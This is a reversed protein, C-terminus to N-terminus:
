GYGEEKRQGWQGWQGSLEVYVGVRTSFQQPPPIDLAIPDIPAIPSTM